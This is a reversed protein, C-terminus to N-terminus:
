KDVEAAEISMVKGFLYHQIVPFKQLVETKYMKILGSNVKSWQHVGSINWLANSHEAFPGTKVENIYKICALFMYDNHYTAVVDNEMFQRPEIPANPGMFQASGWIFPIFQYDDLGWVGQSGAPELKYVTQVKRVLSLYRVCLKFAIAVADDEKLAEVKMMACLFTAFRAEHGTGYDIRSPNGFSGNLYTSLEKTHEQHKEPVCDAILSVSNDVVRQQWTRFARNGFRQPQELPPTEDVWKDLTELVEMLKMVRESVPFEDSIKKGKVAENIM